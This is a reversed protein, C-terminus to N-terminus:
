VAEGLLDEIDSNSNASDVAADFEEISEAIVEGRPGGFIPDDVNRHQAALLEAKVGQNTGVNYSKLQLQLRGWYGSTFLSTDQTEKGYQDSLKVGHTGRKEPVITKSRIIWHGTAPYDGVQKDGDIVVPYNPKFTKSFAKDLIEREMKLVKQIFPKISEDKKDFMIEIQYTNQPEGKYKRKPSDFFDELSQELHVSRFRGVPTIFKESRFPKPQKTNAM